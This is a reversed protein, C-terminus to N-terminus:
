IEGKSNRGHAAVALVYRAAKRGPNHFANPRDVRLALCDGVNLVHREAGITIDLQGELLWIQEEIV